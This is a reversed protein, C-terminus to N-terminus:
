RAPGGQGAPARGPHPHLALALRRLAGAQRAQDCGPAQAAGQGLARGVLAHCPLHARAGRPQQRGAAGAISRRCPRPPARLRRPASPRGQPERAGRHHAPRHHAARRVALEEGGVHDLRGLCLMATSEGRDVELADAVLPLVSRIASSAEEITLPRDAIFLDRGAMLSGFQDAQRWDCGAGIFAARYAKFCALYREFGLVCRARFRASMSKVWELEAEMEASIREAEEPEAPLILPVLDITTIRSRDQPLLPAGLISGMCISGTVTTRREEGGPAGRLVTAGEGESMRRLLEIVPGLFSSEGKADEEAEDLLVARAKSSLAARLGAESYSKSYEAQDGLVGKMLRHLLWTKGSGREAEIAVHAQWPVAGGLGGQGTFGLLLQPGSEPNRYRWRRFISLLRMGDDATAPEAINPREIPPQAAYVASETRLGAKEWGGDMWLRDGCHVILGEDRDKWVGIGRFATDNRWLGAAACRHMLTAAVKELSWKHSERDGAAAFFWARDGDFLSMLGNRTHDRDRLQRHEGSPSLYHYVGDRHGLCVVPCDDDPAAALREPEVPEAAAAARRIEDEGTM